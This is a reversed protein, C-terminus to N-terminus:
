RARPAVPRVIRPIIPSAPLSVASSDAVIMERIQARALTGTTTPTEAGPKAAMSASLAMAMSLPAAPTM